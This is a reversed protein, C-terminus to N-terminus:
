KQFRIIRFASDKTDPQIDENVASEDFKYADWFYEFSVSIGTNTIQFTEKEVLGHVSSYFVCEFM